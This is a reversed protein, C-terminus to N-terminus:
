ERLGVAELAEARTLFDRVEGLKANRVSVVQALTETRTMGSGKGRGRIEFVVLVRGGLDRTELLNTRLDDYLGHLDRWWRRLGDHGLFDGTEGEVMWTIAARYTADPSWGALFGELDGRNFAEFSRRVGEVNEQSM